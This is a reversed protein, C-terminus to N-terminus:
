KPEKVVKNGIGTHIKSLVKPDICKKFVFAAFGISLTLFLFAYVTESFLLYVIYLSFYVICAIALPLAYRGKLGSWSDTFYYQWCLSLAAALFTPFFYSILVGTGWIFWSITADYSVTKLRVHFIIDFFSCIITIGFPIAVSAQVMYIDMATVENKIKSAM